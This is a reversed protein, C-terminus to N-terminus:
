AKITTEIFKKVNSLNTIKEFKENDAIVLTPAQMIAFQKALDANEEADVVEYAIGAKDLMAKAAKCNPCTKTTFLMIKSDDAMATKETTVNPNVAAAFVIKSPDIAYVKRDKFEKSKGDNWNQVPRYYGTIRSYVETKEGCEPCTYVEGSLYGHKRCVSYTPSMTYYPLKYNEAIKRVLNAASKWDPLKEGLFAHFVTGSTYLTQLEDQVDLAEFIDETYGVPLHSSNT